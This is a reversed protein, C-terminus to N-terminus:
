AVRLKSWKLRMAKIHDCILSRFTNHECVCRWKRGVKVVTFTLGDRSQSAVKGYCIVGHRPTKAKVIELVKPLKM